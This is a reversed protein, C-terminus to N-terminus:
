RVLASETGSLLRPIADGPLPPGFHYGQGFRYGLRRLRIAQAGTEVGEAVAALGLAHAMQIIATAVAPRQTSDTIEDVFSKDLKLIDVPCTRLLGLSSQGTGFDDLALRIGHEHLERLAGLVHGGTLVATETVEITLRGPPLGTEALAAIVNGAFGPEQLQRASVNVNISIPPGAWAAAQRCAQELVWQGLPVILGTREAAPIFLAPL